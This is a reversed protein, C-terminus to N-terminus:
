KEKPEKEVSEAIKILENNDLPAIIWLITNTQSDTWILVSAEGKTSDVYLDAPIDGVSVNYTEIGDQKVYANASETNSSYGFTILSGSNNKYEVYTQESFDIVAQEVYGAPIWTPRYSIDEQIVDGEGVHRYVFWTEYADEYIDRVWGVFAARAEANLALVGGGGILVVLLFCAVAKMIRYRIPHDTRRILKKMKREFKPSFTAECDEPEPLSALFSEEVKQAAERLREDSIM